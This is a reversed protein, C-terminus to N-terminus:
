KVEEEIIKKIKNIMQDIRFEKQVYNRKEIAFVRKQIALQIEKNSVSSTKKMDDVNSMM